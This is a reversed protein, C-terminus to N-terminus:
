YKKLVPLRLRSSIVIKYGKPIEMIAEKRIDKCFYYVRSLGGTCLKVIKSHLYYKKGNSTTYTFAKKTM